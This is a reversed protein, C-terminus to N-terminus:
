SLTRSRVLSDAQMTSEATPTDIHTEASKLRKPYFRRGFARITITIRVYKFAYLNTLTIMLTSCCRASGKRCIYLYSLKHLVYALKLWLCLQGRLSVMYCEVSCLSVNIQVYRKRVIFDVGKLVRLCRVINKHNRTTSRPAATLWETQM